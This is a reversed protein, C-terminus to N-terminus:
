RMAKILEELEKRNKKRALNMAADYDMGRQSILLEVYARVLQDKNKYYNTRIPVPTIESMTEETTAAISGEFPKRIVINKPVPELFNITEELPSYFVPTLKVPKNTDTQTEVSLKPKSPAFGREGQVTPLPKADQYYINTISPQMSGLRQTGLLDVFGFPISFASGSKYGCDQCPKLKPPIITFIKNKLPKKSKKKSVKRPM